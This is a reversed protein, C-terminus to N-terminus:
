ECSVFIPSILILGTIGVSALPSDANAMLMLCYSTQNSHTAAIAGRNCSLRYQAQWINPIIRTWM